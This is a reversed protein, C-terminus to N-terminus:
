AANRKQAGIVCRVAAVRWGHSYIPHSDLWNAVGLQQHIACSMIQAQESVIEDVCISQAGLSCLTAIVTVLM